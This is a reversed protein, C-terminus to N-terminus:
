GHPIPRTRLHARLRVVEAVIGAARDALDTPDGLHAARNLVRAQKQLFEAGVAGGVSILIHTAAAVRTLDGLEAGRRVEEASKHLDGDVKGLLEEMAELGISQALADFTEGCLPPIEETEDADAGGTEAKPASAPGMPLDALALIDHGFQEIGIIPKPIVGNAGAALVKERHERLAYATVAIVPAANLPPASQRIARIVEIGSVFPMEIDILYFDYAAVNILDLAEQGNNAVDVGVGLTELMQTAVMQNTINDEALLARKGRLRSLDDIGTLASTLASHTPGSMDDGGDQFYCCDFFELLM